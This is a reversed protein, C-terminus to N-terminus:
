LRGNDNWEGYMFGHKTNEIFKDLRSQFLEPNKKKKIQITDVRVRQCLPPFESLLHYKENCFNVLEREINLTTVFKGKCRGKKVVPNCELAITLMRGVCFQYCCFGDREIGWEKKNYRALRKGEMDYGAVPIRKKKFFVIIGQDVYIEDLPLFHEM